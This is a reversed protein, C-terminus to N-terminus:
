LRWSHVYRLSTKPQLPFRTAKLNISVSDPIPICIKSWDWGNTSVVEKVRLNEEEMALPGQM